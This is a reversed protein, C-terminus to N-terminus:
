SATVGVLRREGPTLADPWRRYLDAAEPHAVRFRALVDSLAEPPWGCRVVPRSARRRARVRAAARRGRAGPPEVAALIDLSM